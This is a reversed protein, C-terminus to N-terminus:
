LEDHGVEGGDSGEDDDDDEEEDEDAPEALLHDQEGPKAAAAKVGKKSNSEVFEILSDLSRDGAISDSWRRSRSDLLFSGDYEIWEKAGAPKFKITPFGQVRFGASAPIDNETADFRSAHATLPCARCLALGLM